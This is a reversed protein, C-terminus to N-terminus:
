HVETPFEIPFTGKHTVTGLELQCKGAMGGLELLVLRKQGTRLLAIETRLIRLLKAESESLYFIQGKM